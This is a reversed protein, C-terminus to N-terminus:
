HFDEEDVADADEVGDCPVGIKGGVDLSDEPTDTGDAYTDEGGTASADYRGPAEVLVDDFDRPVAVQLLLSKSLENASYVINRIDGSFLTAQLVLSPRPAIPPIIDTIDTDPHYCSKAEAVGHADHKDRHLTIDTEPRWRLSCERRRPPVIIPRM